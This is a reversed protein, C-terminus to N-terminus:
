SAGQAAENEPDRKHCGKEEGVRGTLVLLTVGGRLGPPDGVGRTPSGPTHTCM